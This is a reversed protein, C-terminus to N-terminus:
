PKYLNTMEYYLIVLPVGTLLGAIFFPRSDPSKSDFLVWTLILKLYVTLMGFRALVLFAFPPLSIRPYLSVLAIMKLFFGLFPPFGSLVLLLSSPHSTLATTPTDLSIVHLRYFLPVVLIVYGVFYTVTATDRNSALLSLIATHYISSAALIQATTASCYAIFVGLMTSVVALNSVRAATPVSILLLLPLVKIITTVILFSGWSLRPVVAIVWTHGPFIGVKIVVGFLILPPYESLSSRLILLGGASNALYYLILSPTPQPFIVGILSVIQLEILLWFRLSTSGGVGTQIM